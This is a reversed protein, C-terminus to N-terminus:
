HQAITELVGAIAKEIGADDAGAKIATEAADWIRPIDMIDIVVGSAVKNYAATIRRSTTSQKKAM